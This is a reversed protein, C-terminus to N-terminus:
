IFDNGISFYQESFKLQFITQKALLTYISMLDSSKKIIGLQIGLMKSKQSTGTREYVNTKEELSEPSSIKIPSSPM